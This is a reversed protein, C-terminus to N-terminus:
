FIKQPKSEQKWRGPKVRYLSYLCCHCHDVARRWSEQPTTKGQGWPLDAGIYVMGTQYLDIGGTM